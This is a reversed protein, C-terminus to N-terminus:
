HDPVPSTTKRKAAEVKLRYALAEPIRASILKM